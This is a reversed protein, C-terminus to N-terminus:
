MWHLPREDALLLKPQATMGMAIGVRQKMGGSLEVSLCGHGAESGDPANEAADRDGNLIPRSRSSKM